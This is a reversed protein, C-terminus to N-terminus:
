NEGINHYQIQESIREHYKKIKDKIKGFMSIFWYIKLAKSKIIIFKYSFHFVFQIKYITYSFYDVHVCACLTLLMVKFTTVCEKISYVGFWLHDM